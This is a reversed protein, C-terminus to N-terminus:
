LHYGEVELNITLYNIGTESESKDLAIKSITKLRRQNLITKIFRVAQDFDSQIVLKMAVPKATLSSTAVGPTAPAVVGDKVLEPQTVEITKVVIGESIASTRIDEILSQILPDKPVAIDVLYAQSRIEQLQNQLTVVTNINKEFVTNISRLEKAEKNLSVAISLVPKIVFVAFFSSILLFLITYTYDKVEKSGTIKGVLLTKDIM